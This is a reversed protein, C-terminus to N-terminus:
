NLIKLIYMGAVSVITSAFIGWFLDIISLKWTWGRLTAMNTMDYVGYVALGYIVGYLIATGLSSTNPFVIIAMGIALILYSLISALINPKLSTENKRAMDGFARFYFKKAFIGLWVADLILYVIIAVIFNKVM